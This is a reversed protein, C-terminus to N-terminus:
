FRGHQQLWEHFKDMALPKLDTWGLPWMMQWELYEPNRQQTQDEKSMGCRTLMKRVGSGGTSDWRNALSPIKTCGTTPTPMYGYGKEYTTQVLPHRQCSEGNLMFGWSPWTESFEDWDAVLSCQRTKWGCKVPDYKAFSASLKFGYDAESAMLERGKEQPALTRAPFGRLYSMLVAEGHDETLLRLTLGFRSLDCFEMTKDNRWFKHPTPMVNLQAYPEGASCTVESSEGALAQSCRSNEYDRMMAESFLWTM